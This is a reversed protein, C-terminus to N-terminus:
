NKLIQQKRRLDDLDDPLQLEILRGEEDSVLEVNRDRYYRANENEIFNSLAKNKYKIDAKKEIGQLVSYLKKLYIIMVGLM